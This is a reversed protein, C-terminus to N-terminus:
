SNGLRPATSMAKRIAEIARMALEVPATERQAAEQFLTITALAERTIRLAQFIPAMERALAAVEVTHGGKLYLLALELAALAADYPLNRTSFAQRVQELGIFAEEQRGQGAAVHAALWDVRILDLENGLGEALGRIAPLATEAEEYRDLACLAKTTEFRLAFLLRSDGTAEVFATAEALADLASELDGKQECVFARKLLIVGQAAAEGAATNRARDLLELAEDFRREGRRLSAELSLMRWVPLVGGDEGARWLSRAQVFAGEAEPHDNAVRRANALYAWAYGQLRRRWGEGGESRSAAFLALDAL